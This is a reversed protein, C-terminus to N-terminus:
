ELFELFEMLDQVNEMNKSLDIDLYTKKATLFSSSIILQKGFVEYGNVNNHGIIMCNSGIVKLFKSVDNTTYNRGYRNWLFDDLLKNEYDDFIHNFDDISRINRSPGAHSIFIGNDTKLFFPLSKFFSIYNNLSPQLNGKGDKVLEEFSLRQNKGNKYLNTDTIHAWEHNGMLVHFNPYEKSKIIADDLIELSGDPEFPSHILNGIFVIHCDDDSSDWLNLYSRYDEHNGHLDSVVILRGKPPLRILKSNYM